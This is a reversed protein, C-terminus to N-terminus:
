KQTEDHIAVWFSELSLHKQTTIPTSIMNETMFFLLGVFMSKGVIAINHQETMLNDLQESITANLLWHTKNKPLAEFLAKEQTVEWVFGEFYEQLEQRTGRILEQKTIM